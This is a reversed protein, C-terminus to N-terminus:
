GAAFLNEWVSWYDGLRDPDRSDPIIKWRTNLFGGVMAIGVGILPGCDVFQYQFKTLYVDSPQQMRMSYTQGAAVNPMRPGNSRLWEYSVMASWFTLMGAAILGYVLISRVLFGRKM